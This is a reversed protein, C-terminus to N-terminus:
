SHHPMELGKTDGDDVRERSQWIRLCRPHLHALSEHLAESAERRSPSRVDPNKTMALAAFCDM